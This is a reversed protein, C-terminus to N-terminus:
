QLVKIKKCMQLEKNGPTHLPLCTALPSKLLGLISKVRPSASFSIIDVDEIKGLVSGQDWYLPSPDM